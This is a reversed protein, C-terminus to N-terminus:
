KGIDVLLAVGKWKFFMSLKPIQYFLDELARVIYHEKTQTITKMYILYKQYLNRIKIEINLDMNKQKKMYIKKRYIIVKM